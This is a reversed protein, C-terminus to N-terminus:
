LLPDRREASLPESQVEGPGGAQDVPIRVDAVEHASGGALSDQAVPVVDAGPRALPVQGLDM